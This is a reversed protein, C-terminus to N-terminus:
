RMGSPLYSTPAHRRTTRRRAISRTCAPRTCVPLRRTPSCASRMTAPAGRTASRVAIAPWSSSRLWSPSPPAADSSAVQELADALRLHLAGRLPAPTDEYVVDRVLAHTFRFWGGRDPPAEVLSADLAEVLLGALQRSPLDSARAIVEERFQRGLGAALRVMDACPRSLNALRRLVAARVGTPIAIDATSGWAEAPARGALSRVIETLFLPNGASREHLKAVLQPSPSTGTFAEVFRAVDETGLGRLSVTRSTLERVLEGLTEAMANQRTVAVDRFTGVVLLRADGVGRALFRLFLLSARDAGHLDELVILLPRKEAARRLVIAMSDFLRFRASEGDRSPTGQQGPFREHIERVLQALDGGEAGLAARLEADDRARAYTRIAEVWPWFAPAGDEEWCRGVLVEVGRQGARRAMEEATRSKGIGPEGVLLVIQGRGALADDLAATLVQMEEVRGVFPQAAPALPSRDSARGGPVPPISAHKPDPDSSVPMPEQRLM